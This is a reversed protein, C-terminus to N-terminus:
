HTLQAYIFTTNKNRYFMTKTNLTIPESQKLNKKSTDTELLKNRLSLKNEELISIKAKLRNGNSKVQFNSFIEEM